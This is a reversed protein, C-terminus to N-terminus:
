LTIVQRLVTVATSSGKCGTLSTLWDDGTGSRRTSSNPINLAEPPESSGTTIATTALPVGAEADPQPSDVELAARKPARKTRPADDSM